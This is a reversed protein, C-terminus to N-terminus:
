AKNQQRNRYETVTEGGPKATEPKYKDSLSKIYLIVADLEMPTIQGAFIPMQTGYDKLIRKQSYLIDERLTNEDVTPSLPPPGSSYEHHEGFINKWTPGTSKGGDITHCSNCGKRSYV